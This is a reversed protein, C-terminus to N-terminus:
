WSVVIDDPNEQGCSQLGYVWGCSCTLSSIYGCKHSNVFGHMTLVVSFCTAVQACLDLDSSQTKWLKIKMYQLPM